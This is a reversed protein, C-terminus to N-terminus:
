KLNDLVKRLAENGIEPTAKVYHYISGSSQTVSHGILYDIVMTSIGLEFAHQAFSKRASYFMLTKTIGLQKQIIKLSRNICTYQNKPSSKSHRSSLRIKGDPGLYHSIIGKAEIPINFEITGTTKNDRMIKKRHYVMKNPNAIFNYNALDAINIGGLYYSLMFLDRARVLNERSVEVDRIAKIEDTSLWIDRVSKEPMKYGDFPYTEHTIFKCQLAYRLLARISSLRMRITDSRLGKEYLKNELKKIEHFGLNSVLVNEGIYEKTNRVANDYLKISSLALSHTEKYDVYLEEITIFKAKNVSKMSELLQSCTMCEKSEVKDLAKQYKDLLKRLKTNLYQADPRKIIQGSKFESLSQVIIDTVIYRTEGNHSLAIRLKHTRNSLIKAPVITPLLNAM